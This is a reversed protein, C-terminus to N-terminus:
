KFFVYKVLAAIVLLLVFLVLWGMLGMGWMGGDMMKDSRESNRPRPSVPCARSATAPRVLAAIPKPNVTMSAAAGSGVICLRVDPVGHDAAVLGGGVM